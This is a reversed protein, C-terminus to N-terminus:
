PAIILAAAHRGLFSLWQGAGRYVNFSVHAPTIVGRAFRPAILAVHGPIAIMPHERDSESQAPAHPHTHIDAIVRLDFTNCLEWLRSFARPELQVYTHRLSDADLEDYAIWRSVVDPSQRSAVLFAGAERREASRKWLDKMLAPWLGQVFELPM